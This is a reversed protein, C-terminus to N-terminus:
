AAAAARGRHKGRRRRLVGWEVDPRLEECTVPQGRARTEREVILCHEAQIPRDSTFYPSVGQRGKYGLLEALAAQGGVVGAARYLAAKQPTLGDRM